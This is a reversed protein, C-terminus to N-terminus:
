RFVLAAADGHLRLRELPEGVIRRSRHRERNEGHTYFVIPVGRRKTERAIHVNSLIRMGDELVILDPDFAWLERDVRQWVAPLGLHFHLNRASRHPFEDGPDVDQPGVGERQPGHWVVVEYGPLRALRRHLHLKYDALM